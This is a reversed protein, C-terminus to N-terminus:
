SRVMSSLLSMAAVVRGKVPIGYSKLWMYSTYLFSSNGLGLLVAATMLAYNYTCGLTVAVICGALTVSLCLYTVHVPSLVTAILVM